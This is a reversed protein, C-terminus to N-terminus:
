IRRPAEYVRLHYVHPVHRAGLWGGLAATVLALLGSVFAVWMTAATYHAVAEADVGSATGAPAYADINIFGVHALGTVILLGTASVALGWVAIGRVAGMEADNRGDFWSAFLAGLFLSGGWTLIMWLAAGISIGKATLAANHPDFASFGLALGAVYLLAATGTAVLWGSFIAGWNLAPHAHQALSTAPVASTVTAM